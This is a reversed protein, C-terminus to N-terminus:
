CARVAQRRRHDAHARKKGTQGSEALANRTEKENKDETELLVDGHVQFCKGKHRFTHMGMFPDYDTIPSWQRIIGGNSDFLKLSGEPTDKKPIGIDEDAVFTMNTQRVVLSEGNDLWKCFGILDGCFYATQYDGELEEVVKGNAAYITIKM